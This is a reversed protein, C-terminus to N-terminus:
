QCFLPLDPLPSVPAHPSSPPTGGPATRWGTRRRLTERVCRRLEGLPLTDALRDYIRARPAGRLGTAYGVGDLLALAEDRWLLAALVPPDVGPNTRDRRLTRLRVGGRPGSTALILGWWAPAIETAHTLHREGVVLTVKDLVAGYALVQHPLRRLTDHDSKLEYGHLCGNVVAIDVRAAGHQVGLEEIIQTDSRGAYRRELVRLVARRVDSDHM